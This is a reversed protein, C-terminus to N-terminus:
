PVASSKCPKGVPSGGGRSGGGRDKCGSLTIESQADRGASCASCSNSRPPLERGAARERWQHVKPCLQLAPDQWDLYSLPIQTIVAQMWAPFYTSDTGTKLHKSTARCLRHGYPDM